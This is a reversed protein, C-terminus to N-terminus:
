EGELEDAAGLIQDSSSLEFYSPEGLLPWLPCENEEWWVSDIKRPALGASKTFVAVRGECHVAVFEAADFDQPLPAEVEAIAALDEEGTPKEISALLSDVISTSAYGDIDADTLYVSGDGSDQDGGGIEFSDTQDGLIAFVRLLARLRVRRVNDVDPRPGALPRVRVFDIAIGSGLAEFSVTNSGSKLFAAVLDREEWDGTPPAWRTRKNSAEVWVATSPDGSRNVVRASVVYNEDSPVDFQLEFTDGVATSQVFRGQSAGAADDSVIIFGGGVQEGVRSAVGESSGEAEQRLIGDGSIPPDLTEGVTTEPDRDVTSVDPQTVVTRPIDDTGLRPIVVGLVAVILIAAGALVAQRRRVQSRVKRQVSAMGARTEFPEHDTFEELSERLRTEFDNTM